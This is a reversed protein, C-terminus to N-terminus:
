QRSETTHDLYLTEGHEGIATNGRMTEGRFYAPAMLNWIIMLVVGILISGIGLVFV